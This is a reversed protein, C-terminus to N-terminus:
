KPDNKAFWLHEILPSGGRGGGGREIIRIVGAAELKQLALAKAHRSIGIAKLRRNSLRVVTNQTEFVLRDLEVLLLLATEGVGRLALTRAHPLRAYSEGSWTPQIADRKTRKYTKTKTTPKPDDLADGEEDLYIDDQDVKNTGSM